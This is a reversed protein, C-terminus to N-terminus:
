NFLALHMVTKADFCHRLLQWLSRDPGTKSWDMRDEICLVLLWVVPGTGFFAPGHHALPVGSGLRYM